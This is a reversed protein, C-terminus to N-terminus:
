PKHDLFARVERSVYEEFVSQDGHIHKWVDDLSKRLGPIGDKYAVLVLGRPPLGLESVLHRNGTQQTNVVNWDLVGEQLEKGFNKGIVEGSRKEILLCTQCRVNVHFYYAVVGTGRFAAQVPTDSADGPTSTAATMSPLASLCLATLFGTLALRRM